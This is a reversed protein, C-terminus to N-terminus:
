LQTLDRKHRLPIKNYLYIAGQCLFSDKNSKISILTRSSPALDCFGM